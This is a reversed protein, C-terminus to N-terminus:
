GDPAVPGASAVSREVREARERLRQRRRPELYTQMGVFVVTFPVAFPLAAVFSGGFLMSGLVGGLFAGIAVPGVRALWSLGDQWDLYDRVAPREAPSPSEKAVLRRRRRGPLAKWTAPQKLIGM